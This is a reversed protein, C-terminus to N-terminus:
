SSSLGLSSSSISFRGLARDLVRDMAMPARESRHERAELSVSSLGEFSLRLPGRATGPRSPSYGEETVASPSTSVKTLSRPDSRKPLPPPNARSATPITASRVVPSSLHCRALCTRLM